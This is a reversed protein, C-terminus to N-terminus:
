LRNIVARAKIDNILKDLAQTDTLPKLTPTLDPKILKIPKCSCEAMHMYLKNLSYRIFCYSCLASRNTM